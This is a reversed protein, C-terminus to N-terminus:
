IWCNAHHSESNNGTLYLVSSVPPHTVEKEQTLFAEDTDFHLQHGLNAQISRTHVWWEFGVIPDHGPKLQSQALPLVHNMVVDEIVHSARGTGVLLLSLHTQYIMSFPTIDVNITIAKKGIPHRHLFYSVCSM